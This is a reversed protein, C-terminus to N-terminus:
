SLRVIEARRSGLAIQDGVEKGLLAQALPSIYSILGAAPDAEDEGVLTFSSESGDGEQLAVRVGFRVREPNAEPTVVRASAKRQQWYRLDREIPALTTTDAEAEKAAAREGELAKLRTEIQELGRTTVFNTHPSVPREPFDEPIDSGDHERVFARSM